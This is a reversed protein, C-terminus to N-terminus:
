IRPRTDHTKPYQTRYTPTIAKYNIQTNQQALKNANSIKLMINKKKQPHITKRTYRLPIAHLESTLFCFM